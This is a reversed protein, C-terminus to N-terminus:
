HGRDLRGSPSTGLTPRMEAPVRHRLEDIEGRPGDPPRRPANDTSPTSGRPRDVQRSPRMQTVQPTFTLTSGNACSVALATPNNVGTGVCSGGGCLKNTAGATRDGPPPRGCCIWFVVTREEASRGFTTPRQSPMSRTTLIRQQGILALLATVVQGVMPPVAVMGPIPPATPVLSVDGGPCSDLPVSDFRISQAPSWSPRDRSLAGAIRLAEARSILFSTFAEDDYLWAIGDWTTEMNPANPESLRNNTWPLAALSKPWIMLGAAPLESTAVLERYTVEPLTSAMDMAVTAATRSMWYLDADPLRKVLQAMYPRSPHAAIDARANDLTAQYTAEAAAIAEAIWPMATSEWRTKNRSPV